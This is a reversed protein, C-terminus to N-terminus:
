NANRTVEKSPIIFFNKKMEEFKEMLSKKPIYNINALINEYSITNSEENLKIEGVVKMDNLIQSVVDVELNNNQKKNIIIEFKDKLIGWINIVVDLFQKAKKMSIFNGETVFLVRNASQLAWRTSDLFINSSTDLIIFDYKEKASTLIKEYCEESLVNQCYHLSTNGTLVDIGNADILLENLVNADFRNKMILESAYNIGSKKDEDIALEINESIKNIGAIEDLNGNLTDLDIVLIKSGSKQSLIRAFNIAITSKGSGSTGSFTIVEQKQVAKEVILTQMERAVKPTKAIKTNKQKKSLKEIANKVEQVEYNEEPECAMEYKKKIPDERNIADIIDSIEVTSDIFVDLVGNEELIKRLSKDIEDTVVVIRTRSNIKKIKEVFEELNWQGQLLGSIILTDLQQGKINQIVEEQCVLDDCIVDYDAYKTLENNLVSNGMATIIKKM